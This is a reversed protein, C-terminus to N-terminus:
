ALLDTLLPLGLIASSYTAFTSLSFITFGDRASAAAGDSRDIVVGFSLAIKRVIACAPKGLSSYSSPTSSSTAMSSKSALQPLCKAAWLVGLPIRRGTNRKAIRLRHPRHVLYRSVDRHGMAAPLPTVRMTSMSSARYATGDLLLSTRSRKRRTHKARLTFVDLQMVSASDAKRRRPKTSTQTHLRSVAVPAQRDESLRRKLADFSSRSQLLSEFATAKAATSNALSTPEGFALTSRWPYASLTSRVGDNFGFVGAQERGAGPRTGYLAYLLTEETSLTTSLSLGRGRTEDGFLRTYLADFADRVAQEHLREEHEENM